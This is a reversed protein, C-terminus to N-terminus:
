ALRKAMTEEQGGKGEGGGWVCVVLGVRDKRMYGYSVMFIKNVQLIDLFIVKQEV